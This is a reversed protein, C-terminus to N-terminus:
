ERSEERLPKVHQPPTADDGHLWRVDFSGSYGFLPGWRKNTVNVEIRYKNSDDDYWESVEAIGSFAMPFIFGLKGEYFRQEGSRIRVGGTKPDVSIDIDVALHQHTGLYDVIKNRKESFIMTADFRRVRPGKFTRVWTITERGFSDKYAFNEITFPVGNGREPFMIHRWTGVYLFPLTFFNGRWLREMVGEGISALRDDSAFGFREQIKPHLKAFEAGLARQYISSM